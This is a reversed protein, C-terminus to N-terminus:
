APNAPGSRPGAALRQEVVMLLRGVTDTLAVGASGTIEIGFTMQLEFQVLHLDLPVLGLEQFTSALSPEPSDCWGDRYLLALVARRVQPRVRVGDVLHDASRSESPLTM